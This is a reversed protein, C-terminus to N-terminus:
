VHGYSCGSSPTIWLLYKMGDESFINAAVYGLLTEVGFNDGGFMAWCEVTVYGVHGLMARWFEWCPGERGELHSGCTDWWEGIHLLWVHSVVDHWESGIGDCSLWVHCQWAM